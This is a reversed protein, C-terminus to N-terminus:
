GLPIYFFVMPLIWRMHYIKTSSSISIIIIYKNKGKLLSKKELQFDELTGSLQFGRNNEGNQM